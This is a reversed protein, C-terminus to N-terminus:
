KELIKSDRGNTMNENQRTQFFTGKHIHHAWFADGVRGFGTQVEDIVM